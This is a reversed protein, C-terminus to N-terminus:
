DGGSDGTTEKLWDIVMARAESMDHGTRSDVLMSSGHKGNEVVHFGVGAATLIDRQEVSSEHTMEADPRLVLVPAVVDDVWMRARCDVM